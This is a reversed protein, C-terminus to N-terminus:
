PSRLHLRVCYLIVLYTQVMLPVEEVSGISCLCSAVADVSVSGSAPREEAQPGALDLGRLPLPCEASFVLAIAAFRCRPDLTSRTPAQEVLANWTAPLKVAVDVAASM